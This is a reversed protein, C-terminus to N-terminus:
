QHGHLQADPRVAADEAARHVRSRHSEAHGTRPQEPPQSPPGPEEEPDPIGIEAPKRGGREFVRLLNGPQSLEWRYLPQLFSLMGERNIQRPTPEPNARVTAPTGDPMYFEGFQPIKLPFSGNNYLAAGWLMAGHAM